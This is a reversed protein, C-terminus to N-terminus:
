IWAPAWSLNTFTLWWLGPAWAQKLSESNEKVPKFGNFGVTTMKELNEVNKVILLINQSPLPHSIYVHRRLNHAWAALGLRHDGEVGPLVLPPLLQFIEQGDDVNTGPVNGVFWHWFEALTRPNLKPWIIYTVHDPSYFACLVHIVIPVACCLPLTQAEWGAMGPKIRPM